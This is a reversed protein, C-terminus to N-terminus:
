KQLQKLEANIFGDINGALVDDPNKSEFGTRHDKVLKYPHLVYSRIQNGWEPSSFNGKLEDVKEKHQEIMLQALRSRLVKMAMEKNQLQSRENQCIAVIGTPTHTIRVASDTTNVSQGGHGGARYVDIRLDNQDIVVENDAEIEPLIQVLAFSTQRLAKSNFPSQRVLRHVGSERNLKGYAYAGNIELVASKIGAEAGKSQDIINTEFNNQEAWRLYMRLLMETWDQADDGGAGAYFNIIANHQDFKGSFFTLKELETIESSLSELENDDAIEAIESIEDFRGVEDKLNKLEKNKKNAKAEDLWFTPETMENEIALISEKKQDINLIKRLEEIKQRLDEM